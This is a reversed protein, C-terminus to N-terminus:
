KKNTSEKNAKKGSKLNKQLWSFPQTVNFFLTKSSKDEDDVGVIRDFSEGGEHLLAQEQKRLGAVALVANEEEISIVVLASKTTKGDGSELISKILGAKVDQHFKAKDMRGLQRYASAAISHAFIDVYQSEIAAEALKVATNFDGDKMAHVMKKQNERSFSYPAYAATRAFTLRFNLFDAKPDGNKVQALLTKFSSEDDSGSSRATSYGLFFCVILCSRVLM